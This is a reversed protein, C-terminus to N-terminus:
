RPYPPVYPNSISHVKDPSFEADAGHCVTCSEQASAGYPNTPVAILTMIQGHSIDDDTDHCALCAVRSPNQTWASSESHCKTCNRVDQPFIVHSYDTSATIEQPKDLYKGFHVGHARRSLPAAGFGYNQNAWGVKGPTQQLYDHCSKCIDPTFTVAFYSAHMRNDGHCDTCNGAVLPEVNTTGVQFNLVGWGGLPKSPMVEVFATYTGPNLNTITSLQYIISDATRTIRPDANTPNLLMRLENEAYYSNPIPTAAATTLVPVTYSRPGSVYLNARQWENPQVNTSILPQVINTPNIALGTTADKIKIIVQPAEGSNYFRGNAPPSMALEVLNSFAPSSVLHTASVSLGPLPAKPDPDATHCVSCNSDDAQALGGHAVQGAPVPNPGFWVNDHCAGCALRTPDTKWRNDAHCTTCNRVDPPFVLSTYDKFLGNVSNTDFALQLNAGMHVGHVRKVIPDPTLVGSADTYAAYGDNNHCSKCSAAPQFDLAPNGTPSHGPDIHHMYIKGSVPGLHCAACQDRTVVPTELNTTGIQLTAFKMIQQLSDSALVAWLSLTYTGPAETSVPQLPYTLITGNVQVGPNKTLDIYHHPPNSTARNTPANLLKAATVTQEPEQPGYMYLNLSSFSNTNLGQAMTDLITVTVVPSEGVTFYQGNAPASVRLLATWGNLGATPDGESVVRYFSLDVTSKPSPILATYVGGQIQTVLANPVDYWPASPDLSDRTQVLFPPATGHFLIEMSGALPKSFAAISPPQNTAAAIPREFAALALIAFGILPGPIKRM